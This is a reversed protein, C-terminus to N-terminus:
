EVLKARIVKCAEDTCRTIQFQGDTIVSRVKHLTVIEGDVVMAIRGGLHGRTFDEARRVYQRSLSVSLVDKGQGDSKIVPTGEIVLPVFDAPDIAVYVLPEDAPAGSYTRRDYAIVVGAAAGRVRAEQAEQPTAAERLVAYAGNALPRPSSAEIPRAAAPASHAHQCGCLGPALVISLMVAIARCVPNIM